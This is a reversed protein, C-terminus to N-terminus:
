LFYETLTSMIEIWNYLDLLKAVQERTKLYHRHELNSEKLQDFIHITQNQLDYLGADNELLYFLREFDSWITKRQNKTLVNTWTASGVRGSASGAQYTDGNIMGELKVQYAKVNIDFPLEIQRIAKGLADTITEINEHTLCSLDFDESPLIRNM